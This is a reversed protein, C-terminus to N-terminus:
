AFDQSLTRNVQDIIKYQLALPLSTYDENDTEFLNRVTCNRTLGLGSLYPIAESPLISDIQERLRINNYPSIDYDCSFGWIQRAISNDWYSRFPSLIHKHVALQLLASRQTKVIEDYNGERLRAIQSANQSQGTIFGFSDNIVLLQDPALTTLIQSIIQKRIHEAEISIPEVYQEGFIDAILKGQPAVAIDQSFADIQEYLKKRKWDNFFLLFTSRNTKLLDKYTYIEMERAYKSDIPRDMYIEPRSRGILKEPLLPYLEKSLINTDKNNLIEITM